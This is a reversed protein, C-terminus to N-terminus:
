AARDGRGTSSDVPGRDPQELSGLLFLLTSKGCGSPGSITVFQEPSCTFSVRDVAKIIEDGDEFHKSLGEAIVTYSAELTPTIESPVEDEDLTEELDETEDLDELDETEDPEVRIKLRTM